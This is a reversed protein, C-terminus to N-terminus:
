DCPVYRVRVDMTTGSPVEIDDYGPVTVTRPLTFTIWKSRPVVQDKDAPHGDPLYTTCGKGSTCVKLPHVESYEWEMRCADPLEILDSPQGVKLTLTTEWACMKKEWFAKFGGPIKRCIVESAYQRKLSPLNELESFQGLSHSKGVLERYAWNETPSDRPAQLYITAFHEWSRAQAMDEQLMLKCAEERMDEETTYAGRDSWDKANSLPMVVCIFALLALFPITVVMRGWQLAKEPADGVSRRINSRDQKM